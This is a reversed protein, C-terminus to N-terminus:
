VAEKEPATAKAYDHEAHKRKAQIFKYTEWAIMAVLGVTFDWWIWTPIMMLVGTVLLPWDLLRTLDSDTHAAGRFYRIAMMVVSPVVLILGLVIWFMM